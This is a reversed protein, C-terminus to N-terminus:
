PTHEFGHPPPRCVLLREQLLGAGAWPPFDHEPLLISLRGQPVVLQGPVLGKLNVM